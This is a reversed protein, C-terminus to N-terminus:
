RTTYASDVAAMGNGVFHLVEVGVLVLDEAHESGVVACVNAVIVLHPRVRAHQHLRVSAQNNHTARRVRAIQM